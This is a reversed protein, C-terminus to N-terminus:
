QVSSIFWKAASIAIASAIVGLELQEETLLDPTVWEGSEFDVYFGRKKINDAEQRWIEIRDPMDAADVPSGGFNLQFDIKALQLASFSALNAGLEHKAKHSRFYIKLWDDNRIGQSRYVLSISKAAEEFALVCLAVATGHFGERRLHGSSIFLREANECALIAGQLLHEEPIM